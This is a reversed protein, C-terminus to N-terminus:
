RGKELYRIVRQRFGLTRANIIMRRLVEALPMENWGARSQVQVMMGGREKVIEKCIPM